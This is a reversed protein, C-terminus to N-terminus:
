FKSRMWAYLYKVVQNSINKKQKNNEETITTILNKNIGKVSQNIIIFDDWVKKMDAMNLM